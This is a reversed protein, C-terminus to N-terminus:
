KMQGSFFQSKHQQFTTRLSIAYVLNTTVRNSQAEELYKAAQESDVVMHPKYDARVFYYCYSNTSEVGLISDLYMKSSSRSQEFDGKVIEHATNM